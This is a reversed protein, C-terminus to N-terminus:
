YILANFRKVIETNPIVAAIIQVYIFYVIVKIM